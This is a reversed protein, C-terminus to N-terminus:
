TECYFSAWSRHGQQLLANSHYFEFLCLM